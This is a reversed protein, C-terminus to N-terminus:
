EEEEDSDMYMEGFFDEPEQLNSSELDCHALLMVALRKACDIDICVGGKREDDRLYLHGGDVWAELNKRM